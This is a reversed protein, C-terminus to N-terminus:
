SELIPEHQGQVWKGSKGLIVKLAKDCYGRMDVDLIWRYQKDRKRNYAVNTLKYGMGSLKEILAIEFSYGGLRHLGEAVFVVSCYKNLRAKFQNDRRSTSTARNNRGSGVYFPKGNEDLWVYVYVGDGGYRTDTFDICADVICRYKTRYYM